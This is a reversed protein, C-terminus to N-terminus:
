HRVEFSSPLELAGSEDWDVDVASVDAGAPGRWIEKVLEDLSSRAGSAVVRLTGDPLNKVYGRLHLNWATSRVFVRFGVGQVFGRM